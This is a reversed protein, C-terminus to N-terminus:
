STKVGMKGNQKEKIQYKHGISISRQTEEEIKLLQKAANNLPILKGNKSLFKPM